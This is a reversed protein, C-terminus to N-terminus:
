SVCKRVDANLKGESNRETGVHMANPHPHRSSSVHNYTEASEPVRKFSRL